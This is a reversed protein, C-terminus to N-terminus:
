RCLYTFQFKSILLSCVIETFRQQSIPTSFLKFHQKKTFQYNARINFTKIQAQLLLFNVKKTQFSGFCQVSLMLVIKIIVSGELEPYNYTLFWCYSLTIALNRSNKSLHFRMM